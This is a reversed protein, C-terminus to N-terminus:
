LHMFQPDTLPHEYGQPSTKLLSVAGNERHEPPKPRELTAVTSPSEADYGALSAGNWENIRGISIHVPIRYLLGHDSAKTM